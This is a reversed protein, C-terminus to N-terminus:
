AQYLATELGPPEAGRSAMPIELRVTAGREGNSLSLRGDIDEMRQRLNTMGHGASQGALAEPPLGVGNDTMTLVLRDPQEDLTVALRDARAHRIVNSVTERLASALAKHRRYDLPRDPDTLSPPPWDLEIGAAQLRRAAEHRVEAIVRGLPARDGTLGSVVFRIDSLAAHLVPRTREDATHLGSLLRAGVDDHLDKAM